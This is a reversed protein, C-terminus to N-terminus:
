VFYDDVVFLGAFDAPKDDPSAEIWGTAALAFVVRGIDESRALGWGKLTAAGATGFEDRVRTRLLRCFGAAGLHPINDQMGASSAHEAMDGVVAEVLEVPLGLDAAIEDLARTSGVYEQM